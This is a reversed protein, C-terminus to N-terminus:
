FGPNQEIIGNTQQVERFPIPFLEDRGEKFTIGKDSPEIQNTTEFPDTSENLNYKVFSGNPGMVHCIMPKGDDGKWRRLDFLRSHEFALELRREERIADRLENGSAECDPLYVRRRVM